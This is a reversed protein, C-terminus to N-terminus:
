ETRQKFTACITNASCKADSPGVCITGACCDSKNNHYVCNKVDCTIGKIYKNREAGCETSYKKEEM